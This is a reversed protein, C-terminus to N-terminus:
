DLLSGVVLLGLLSGVFGGLGQITTNGFEDNQSSIGLWNFNKKVQRQQTFIFIDGVDKDWPAHTAQLSRGLLSKNHTGRLAQQGM